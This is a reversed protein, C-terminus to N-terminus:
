LKQAKLWGVLAGWIVVLLIGALGIVILGAAVASMGLFIQLALTMALLRAAVSLDRM